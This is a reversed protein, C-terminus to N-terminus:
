KQSIIMANIIGVTQEMGSPLKFSFDISGDKKPKIKEFAMERKRNFSPNIDKSVVVSGEAQCIFSSTEEAVTSIVRIDYEKKPNLNEIRLYPVKENENNVAVKIYSQSIQAPIGSDFSIKKPGDAKRADFSRLIKVNVNSPSNKNDLVDFRASGEKEYLLSLWGGIVLDSGFSIQIKDFDRYGSKQKQFNSLPTVAFPNKVALEAAQKALNSHEEGLYSPRYTMTNIDSFLTQYWTSAATFRGLVLDLHYAERTFNDGAYSSRGNQIATGTPILKYLPILEDIKRSVDVIQNYMLQQNRDYKEFNATVANQGYAWTQHYLYKVTSVRYNEAVYAHLQPLSQEVSSWNGSTVSAQQYCIYDWNEDKLAELISTRDTNSKIGDITTKRYSYIKINGLANKLHFDLPAGGRFLNGIIMPKGTSRAMEHLYSEVGDDSFSNGIVLVKTVGDQLPDLIEHEKSNISLEGTQWALYHNQYNELPKLLLQDRASLSKYVNPEVRITDGLFLTRPKSQAALYTYNFILLITSLRIFYNIM